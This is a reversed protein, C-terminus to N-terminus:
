KKLCLSLQDIVRRLDEGSEGFVRQPLVVCSGDKLFLLLLNSFLRYDSLERRRGDVRLKGEGLEVSLPRFADEGAQACRRLAAWKIARAVLLNVLLVWGLSAAAAAAYAWWPVPFLIVIVLVLIVPLIPWCRHRLKRFAPEALLGAACYDTYEEKQLTYNFEM